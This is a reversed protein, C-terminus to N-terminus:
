FLVGKRMEICHCKSTFWTVIPTLINREKSWQAIQRDKCRYWMRKIVVSKGTMTCCGAKKKMKLGIKSKHVREM